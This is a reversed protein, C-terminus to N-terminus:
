VKPPLENKVKAKPKTVKPTESKKKLTDYKSKLSIYKSELTQNELSLKSIKEFYEANQQDARIYMNFSVVAAIIALAFLVIAFFEFMKMEKRGLNIKEIM